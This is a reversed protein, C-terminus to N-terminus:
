ELVWELTKIREKLIEVQKTQMQKEEDLEEFTRKLISFITIQGKIEEIKILSESLHLQLDYLNNACIKGDVISESIKLANKIRKEIIM